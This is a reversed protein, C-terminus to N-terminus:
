RAAQQNCPVLTKPRRRRLTGNTPRDRPIAVEGLKPAPHGASLREPSPRDFVATRGDGRRCDGTPEPSDHNDQNQGAAQHAIGWLPRERGQINRKAAQQFDRRTDALKNLLIKRLWARVEHENRVRFSGFAAKAQVFTEQVIDSPGVKGRLQDDLEHNALYVIVRTKWCSGWIRQRAGMPPGTDTTSSTTLSWSPRLATEARKTCRPAVAPVAGSMIEENEPIIPGLFHKWLKWFRALYADAPENYVRSSDIRLSNALKPWNRTRFTACIRRTYPFNTAHGSPLASATLEPLSKYSWHGSKFYGVPICLPKIVPLHDELTTQKLKWNCTLHCDLSVFIKGPSRM